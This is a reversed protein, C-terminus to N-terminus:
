PSVSSKWCHHTWMTIKRGEMPADDGWDEDDLGALHDEFTPTDEDDENKAKKAQGTQGTMGRKQSM